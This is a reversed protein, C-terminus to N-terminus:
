RPLAAVIQARLQSARENSPQIALAIDLEALAERSQGSAALARALEVRIEVSARTQGVLALGQRGIRIADTSRGSENMLQVATFYLLESKSSPDLTLAREISRVAESLNGAAQMVEARTVHARPNNADTQVVLDGLEISRARAAADGNNALVLDVQALDGLYRVDYPALRSATDFARQSEQWRGGGAYALGLVHWYAPRMGDLDTARLGLAIAESVRGALRTIESAQAARSAGFANLGTLAISSAAIVLAPAVFFRRPSPRNKTRSSRGREAATGAGNTSRRTAATVGAITGLGTWLLWDTSVENVSTLGTGLFAAVLAAGVFALPDYRSRLVVAAATVLIAFFSLLGGIGSTSAVQVVWSHGSTALSQRIQEPALEPRFRPVGVVFNDPGWGLIPRERLMDFGIGYLTLRGAASAELGGPTPSADEAVGADLTAALRSGVPTLLILAALLGIAITGSALAVVRARRHPHHFWVLLVLSTTALALGILGSRTETAASGALLLAGYSALGVRVTASLQNVLVAGAIAVTGLCTLYQCLATAEGFTSFPRATDISWRVPDQGLMQAGEYALVFASAGLLASGTAVVDVRRRVLLVISFYLVVGDAITDLGLMRAHTGFLALPRDAAIMTALFNAVLFAAVALHLWSWVILRRGFQWLLAAIVGTLVCALSHSLLGKPVVFPLDASADVALPVLALKACLVALGLLRLKSGAIESESSSKTSRRLYTRTPKFAGM